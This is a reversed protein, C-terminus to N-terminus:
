KSLQKLICDEKWTDEEYQQVDWWVAKSDYKNSQQDSCNDQFQRVPLITMHNDCAVRHLMHTWPYQMCTPSLWTIPHKWQRGLHWKGRSIDSLHLPFTWHLKNFSWLNQLKWRNDIKRWKNGDLETKFAPLQFDLESASITPVASWIGTQPHPTIKYVM